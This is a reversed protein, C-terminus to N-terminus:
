KAYTFVLLTMRTGTTAPTASDTGPLLWCGIEFDAGIEFCMLLSFEQLYEWKIDLVEFITRQNTSKPQHRKTKRKIKIM